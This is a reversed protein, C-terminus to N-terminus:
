IDSPRFGGTELRKLLTAVSLQSLYIKEEGGKEQCIVFSKPLESSVNVIKGVREAKALCNRTHKSLTTNDLDFIGLIQETSVVTYQGLHLFM